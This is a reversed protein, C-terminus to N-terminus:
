AKSGTTFATISRALSPVEKPIGVAKSVSIAVNAMEITGLISFILNTFEPVSAHILAM